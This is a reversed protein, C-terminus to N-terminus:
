GVCARSGSPVAAADEEAEAPMAGHCLAPCCGTLTRMHKSSRSVRSTPPSPQRWTGQWFKKPCPPSHLSRDLLYSISLILRDLLYSISLILLLYILYTKDYSIRYSLIIIIMMMMMMIMMIMMMFILSFIRQLILFPTATTSMDYPVTHLCGQLRGKTGSTCCM